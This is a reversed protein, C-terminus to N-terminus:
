ASWEFTSVKAKKLAQRRRFTTPPIRGLADHPRHENYTRIWERTVKRVDELTEFLYANLVEERYTRNFREIYANQDPKGPQIYRIEVGHDQCWSVFAEAILETGNDCRIAEPIGRVMRLQELTRVVRPSPISTDAVIDLAERVGEDLVNLTRFRRGRYLADSMFDLSWVANPRMEVDLPQRLRVPIRRKTRRPLNLKMARYVRWVRKHNWPRGDLRLRDFCKWFGWRPHATVVSNLAGIVPGDRHERDAPPKYYM